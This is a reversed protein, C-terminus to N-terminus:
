AAQAAAGRVRADADDLAKRVPRDAEAVELQPMQRMARNVSRTVVNRIWSRTSMPVEPFLISCPRFGDGGRASRALVPAPTLFCGPLLCAGGLAARVMPTGPPHSWGGIGDPRIPGILGSSRWSPVRHNSHRREHAPGHERVCSCLGFM